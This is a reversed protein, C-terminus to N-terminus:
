CTRLLTPVTSLTLRCMVDFMDGYVNNNYIYIHSLSLSLSLALSVSLSIASICVNDSLLHRQIVPRDVTMGSSPLKVPDKM